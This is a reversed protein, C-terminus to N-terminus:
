GRLQRRVVEKLLELEDRLRAVEAALDDGIEAGVSIQLMGIVNGSALDVVSILAGEDSLIEAPLPQDLQWAGQRGEIQALTAGGLKEGDCRVEVRPEGTGVETLHAQWTGKMTRSHTLKM